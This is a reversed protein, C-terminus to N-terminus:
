QNLREPYSIFGSIRSNATLDIRVCGFWQWTATERAWLNGVRFKVIGNGVQKDYETLLCYENDALNTGGTYCQGIKQGRMWGTVKTGERVPVGNVSVTGWYLCPYTIRAAVTPVLSLVLVLGLILGLIKKM